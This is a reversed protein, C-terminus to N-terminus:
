EAGFYAETAVELGRRAEVEAREDGSQRAEQGPALRQPDPVAGPGARRGRAGGGGECPAPVAGRAPGAVGRRVGAARVGEGGGRADGGRAGGRDTGLEDDEGRPQPVPGREAREPGEVQLADGRVRGRDVGADRDAGRLPRRCRAGAAGAALHHGARLVRTGVIEISPAVGPVQGGGFDFASSVAGVADPEDEFLRWLAGAAARASEDHPIRLYRAKRGSPSGEDAVYGLPVVLYSGLDYSGVHDYFAKLWAGANQEEDDEPVGTAEAVWRALLGSAAAYMALKPILDLQVTRWWYGARTEPRTALQADARWGQVFVNSFMFVANTLDKARGGDTVNPTGVQTRVRWARERESVGRDSLIRWAAFKPLAETFRNVLRVPGGIRQLAALVRNRDAPPAMGYREATKRLGDSRGVFMVSEGPPLIAGSALMERVGPATVEGKAYRWAKRAETLYRCVVARYSASKGKLALAKTARRLDRVPNTWM